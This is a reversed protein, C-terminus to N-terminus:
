EVQCIVASRDNPDRSIAGEGGRDFEGDKLAQGLSCVKRSLVVLLHISGGGSVKPPISTQMSSAVFATRSEGSFEFITALALSQM